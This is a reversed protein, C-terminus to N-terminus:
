IFFTLTRLMNRSVCVDIHRYPFQSNVELIEKEADRATSDRHDRGVSRLNTQIQNLVDMQEVHQKDGREQEKHLQREVDDRDAENRLKWENRMEAVERRLGQNSAKMDRLEVLQEKSLDILSGLVSVLQDTATPKRPPRAARKRVAGAAGPTSPGGESRNRYLQSAM